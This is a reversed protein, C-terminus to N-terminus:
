RQPTRWLEAVSKGIRESDPKEDDTKPQIILDAHLMDFNPMAKGNILIVYRFGIARWSGILRNLRDIQEEGGADYHYAPMTVTRGRFSQELPALWEGTRAVSETAEWPSEEGTLGSLPLLCTDLYPQLEPWSAPDIESFKM